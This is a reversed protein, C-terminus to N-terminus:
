RLDLIRDGVVAVVGNGVVILCCFGPLPQDILGGLHLDEDLGQGALGDGELDLAAVGDVVDLGLDLVLLPDRRVLLPEDEGPLLQLVPARQGVVVDLLLRRQVEHEAEAAAEGDLDLREGALLDLDVDLVGVRDVADLLADLLLLADRGDLLPEDEIALLHGGVLRHLLVLALAAVHEM